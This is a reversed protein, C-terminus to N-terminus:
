RFSIEYGAIMRSGIKQYSKYSKIKESKQSTNKLTDLYAEILKCIKRHKDNWNRYKTSDIGCSVLLGRVHHDSDVWEFSIKKSHQHNNKNRMEAIRLHVYRLILLSEISTSHDELHFAGYRCSVIQGVYRAYEWLIPARCFRYAFCAKGNDAYKTAITELQLFKCYRAKQLSTAKPIVERAAIENAIDIAIQLECMAEIRFEITNLIKKSIRHHADHYMIRAIMDITFVQINNSYLSCIADFILSDILEFKFAECDQHRLRVRIEVDDFLVINHYKGDLSITNHFIERAVKTNNYYVLELSSLNQVKSLKDSTKKQQELEKTISIVMKGFM